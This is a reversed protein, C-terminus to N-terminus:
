ESRAQQEAWLHEVARRTSRAIRADKRPDGTLLVLAILLNHEIREAWKGDYDEPTEM